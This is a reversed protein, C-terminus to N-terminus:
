TSPSTTKRTCPLCLERRTRQQRWDAREGGMQAAVAQQALGADSRDCAHASAAGFSLAAVGLAAVFRAVHKTTITSM